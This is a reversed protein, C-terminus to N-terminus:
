YSKIIRFAASQALAFRDDTSLAFVMVTLWRGGKLVNLQDVSGGVWFAADGLGPVDQPKVKYLTEVSSRASDFEARALVQDSSQRLLINLTRAQDSSYICNSVASAGDTRTVNPGQTVKINGGLLAAADDAGYVECAGLPAKVEPRGSPAQRACGTALLALLFFPILIGQPNRLYPPIRM